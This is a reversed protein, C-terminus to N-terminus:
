RHDSFGEDKLISEDLTQPNMMHYDLNQMIWISGGVIIVLVLGAFLLAALNWRPGIENGIHLFFLLQVMLQAAALILIAAILMPTSLLGQHLHAWVAGFAAFTLILSLIFGTIYTRYTGM